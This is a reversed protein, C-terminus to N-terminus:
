RTAPSASGAIQSTGSAAPTVVPTAPAAGTRLMATVAEAPQPRAFLYGQAMECGLERLVALQEPTEVGEAVVTLGLARALEVITRVIARDQASATVGAVFARDIKLLDFPFQRLYALSSYGTGFDDMAVRVGLDKLARLVTASAEPQEMVVSETVELCVLLDGAPGGAEALTWAVTDVLDAHFLQRASLNVSVEFPADAGLEDRWRRGQRCAEGLVWAGIPVILGSDEAVPIFHDPM